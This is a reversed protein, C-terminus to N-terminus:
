VDVGPAVGPGAVPDVVPDVSYKVEITLVKQRESIEPLM